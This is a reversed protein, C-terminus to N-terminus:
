VANQVRFKKLMKTPLKANLPLAKALNISNATIGVAHLHLAIVM